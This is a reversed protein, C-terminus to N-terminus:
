PGAAECADRQCDRPGHEIRQDRRRALFGRASELSRERLRRRHLRQDGARVHLQAGGACEKEIREFFYPCRHLGGAPDVKVLAHGDPDGGAVGDVLGLLHRQRGVAGDAGGRHKGRLRELAPQAVHVHDRLVRVPPVRVVFGDALMQEAQGRIQCEQLRRLSGAAAACPGAVAAPLYDGAPDRRGGGHYPGAYRQHRGLDAATAHLDLRGGIFLVLLLEDWSHIFAFIAGSAIAPRIIPLLVMWLSQAIGAGLSRAAQELRTDFDALAASVLIVVYPLATVAHAIIVGTYSSLLRLDAFLRYIGLAYVVTPVIIPLLMLLRVADAVRGGLRWCGIACLTGAITAIAMAFLAIVLSQGFSSLWDASTFFDAFYQVSLRQAPLSLYARDTLSMPVIVTIPLVLFLIVLWAGMRSM